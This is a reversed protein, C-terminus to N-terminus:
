NSSNPELEVVAHVVVSSALAARAASTTPGPTTSNDIDELRRLTRRSVAAESPMDDISFDSRPDTHSPVALLVIKNGEADPVEVTNPPQGRNRWTPGCMLRHRTRHANTRWETLNYTVRSIAGQCVSLIAILDPPETMLGDSCPWWAGDM